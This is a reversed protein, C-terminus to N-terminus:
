RRTGEFTMASPHRPVPHVAGEANYQGWSEKIIGYEALEEESMGEPDPLPDITMKWQQTAKEGWITEFSETLTAECSRDPPILLAWNSYHSASSATAGLKTFRWNWEARKGVDEITETKERIVMEHEPDTRGSFYHPKLPLPNISFGRQATKIRIETRQETITCVDQDRAHVSATSSIGFGHWWEGTSAGLPGMWTSQRNLTSNLSVTADPAAEPTWEGQYRGGDEVIGPPPDGSEVPAGASLTMGFSLVSLALLATIFGLVKIPHPIEDTM